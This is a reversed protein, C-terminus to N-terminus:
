RRRIPKRTNDVQDPCFGNVIEREVLGPCQLAPDLPSHRKDAQLRIVGRKVQCHQRIIWGFQLHERGVQQDIDGAKEAVLMYEVAESILDHRIDQPSV